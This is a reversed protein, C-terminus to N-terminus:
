RGKKRKSPAYYVYRSITEGYKEMQYQEIMFILENLCSFRGHKKRFWARFSDRSSIQIDKYMNFFLQLKFENKM